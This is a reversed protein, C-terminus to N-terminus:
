AGSKLRWRKRLQCIPRLDMVSPQFINSKKINGQSKIFDMDLYHSLSKRKIRKVEINMGDRLMKKNVAHQTIREAFYKFSGTLDVKSNKEKYEFELGIFLMSCFPATDVAPNDSPENEKGSNSQTPVDDKKYEFCTPNAHVLSMHHKHQVDDVLLRIKSQVLGCWQLQDQSTQSTVLVVIFHHYRYFFSPAEFLLDWPAGDSMIVNMTAMGRNLENIIVKKTAESVNFASNYQPYAPTIIPMLHSCLAPSQLNVIDTRKLLVPDPWRWRSFMNFFKQVLTSATANPYFQCTHAVLIAWTICGFYGFSNSYIGHKKAWLKISRLALRFNERNPVLEMIEDIVRCGNLSLVSQPDSDKLLNDDRLSFDEPIEKPSLRAFLLDIEVGDFKMKIVPVSTNEVSRCEAVKPQKKLLGFFSTFFESREINRPAVCLAYINAGKDHVGLRYSGFTYIKGGLKKADAKSMNKAMSVNKIWKRVLMNLKTLIKTRHSLEDPTEFVNFAELAKLLANTKEEPRSKKWGIGSTETPTQQQHRSDNQGSAESSNYSGHRPNQYADM